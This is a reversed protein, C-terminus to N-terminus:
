GPMEVLHKAIPVCVYYSCLSWMEYVAAAPQVQNRLNEWVGLKDIQVLVVSPHSLSKAELDAEM